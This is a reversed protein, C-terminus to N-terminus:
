KLLVMKHIERQGASELVSFYTGSSLMSGDFREVYKKGPQADSDFLTAVQQGLVNYLRLTTRAAKAVTFEITTSPNFPNPYNQFLRFVIPVTEQNEVGTLTFHGVGFTGFTTIGRRSITYPQQTFQTSYAGVGAEATSDKYLLYIAPYDSHHKAFVTDEQASMWGFQLVCNGGAPGAVQWDVDVRGLGNTTLATDPFASVFFAGATGSNAIWVPDYATETGVPFLVKTPGVGNIKLAGLSDTVIYNINSTGIMGPMTLTDARLHLVGSPIRLSDTLTLNKSLTVGAYNVITLRNITSPLDSGTVQALTTADYVFNAKTSYSKAGTVQISGTPSVGNPNGTSFTAGSDLV